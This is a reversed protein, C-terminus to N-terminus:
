RDVREELKCGWPPRSARLARRVMGRLDARTLPPSCRPAYERGLLDLAEGEALAFGRVTLLVARWATPNREAGVPRAETRALYSAARELRGPGRSPAGQQRAITEVQQRLREAEQLREAADVVALDRLAAGSRLRARLERLAEVDLERTWAAAARRVSTPREDAAPGYTAVRRAYAPDAIAIV